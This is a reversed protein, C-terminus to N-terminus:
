VKAGEAVEPNNMSKEWPEGTRSDLKKGTKRDIVWPSKSIIRLFNDRLVNIRMPSPSSDDMAELRNIEDGNKRVALVRLKMGDKTAIVDNELVSNDM